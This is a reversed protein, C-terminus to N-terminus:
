IYSFLSSKANIYISPTAVLFLLQYQLLAGVPQSTGEKGCLSGRIVRICPIIVRLLLSVLTSDIELLWGM